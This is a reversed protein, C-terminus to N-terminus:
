ATSFARVPSCALQGLYASRLGNLSRPQRFRSLDLNSTSGAQLGSQPDKPAAELPRHGPLAKLSEAPAPTALSSAGPTALADRCQKARSGRAPLTFPDLAMPKATIVRTVFPAEPALGRGAIRESGAHDRDLSVGCAPCRMWRYGAVASDPSAYHRTKQGCRSCCSSTGRADVILVRIGVEQAKQNILEAIKGRLGLNVRLNQKRNLQPELTRLDELVITDCCHALAQEIAWRSVLHALEDLLKNYRRSVRQRELWLIARDQALPNDSRVDAPATELPLGLFRSFLDIKASLDETHGCLDYIQGLLGDASFRVERGDTMPQGNELWALSGVLPTNVGWDFGMARMPILSIPNVKDKEFPMDAILKKGSIRLTPKCASGELHLPQRYPITHWAWDAKSEPQAVLPLMLALESQSLECFQEDCVALLTQRAVKPHEPELEFFDRPYRGNRQYFNEQARWSNRISVADAKSPLPQDNILSNLLQRRFDSSRLTRGMAELAMYGVRSPAYLDETQLDLWGFTQGAAKYAFAPQGDKLYADLDTQNWHSALSEEALTSVMEILYGARERLVKESIREEGLKASM